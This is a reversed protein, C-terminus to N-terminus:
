TANQPAIGDGRKTTGGGGMHGARSCSVNIRARPQTVHCRERATIPAGAFSALIEPFKGSNPRDCWEPCMCYHSESSTAWGASIPPTPPTTRGHSVRWSPSGEVKGVRLSNWNWKRQGGTDNNKQRLGMGFGKEKDGKPIYQADCNCPM